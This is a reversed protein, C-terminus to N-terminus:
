GSKGWSDSRCSTMDEKNREVRIIGGSGKIRDSPATGHHDNRGEGGGEGASVQAHRVCQAWWAACVAARSARVCECWFGCLV